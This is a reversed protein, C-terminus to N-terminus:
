YFWKILIIVTTISGKTQNREKYNHELVTYLLRGIGFSPEIVHPLVAKNELNADKLNIFYFLRNSENLNKSIIFYRNWKGIM